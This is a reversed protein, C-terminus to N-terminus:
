GAPKRKRFGEIAKAVEPSTMSQMELSIGLEFSESVRARTLAAFARKTGNVGEPPLARLREAIARAAPFVAEPTEVLETVLGFQYAQEGTIMDGTLLYRKARNIGVAQSWAVIGGDGAVIGVVVHTDAIKAGRWSVVVDCIGAITAGLGVAAGQVAAIVPVPLDIIGNLVDRADRTMRNRLVPSAQAAAIEDFDGGASFARGEAGIILVRASSSHAVIRLAAIFDEHALTDFRNLLDPRTFVLEAIDTEVSLRLTRFTPGSNM